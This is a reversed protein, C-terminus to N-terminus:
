KEKNKVVKLLSIIKKRKIFMIIAILVVIVYRILLYNYLFSLIIVSFYILITYIILQSIPFISKGEIKKAVTNAYFYHAFAFITYCILTTYGAAVFGFISIFIANLCVNIVAGIMTMLSSFKNANFYFEANSFVGYIMIFFVSGAVPPVVYTADYYEPSAMIWVAEPAFAIFIIILIEVALMLPYFVNNIEEFKKEKMKEYQWPTISSHLSDTVLKMVLGVNYAVGYIGVKAVGCIKSIMIRDSQELVYASFYHPILPTNFLIAFKIYEWKFRFNSKIFNYMYLIAGFVTAVIICSLIRATGKYEDESLIVAVVGLLANLITYSLTIAVVSKYKYDYRKRINFFSMSPHFFLELFMACTLFTSLETLKNIQNHFVLYLVFLIITLINTAVQMSSTYIDKEESYKSMGKNFVSKELRFTCFITFISLWSNYLNYQGYQETTLLRSFIPTTLMAIGRQLVGCLTFWLASKVIISSNKYKKLLSSIM